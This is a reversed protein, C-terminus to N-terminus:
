GTLLALQTIRRGLGAIGAPEREVGVREVRDPCQASFSLWVTRRHETDAGIEHRGIVDTPPPRPCALRRAEVHLPTEVIQPVPRRGDRDALAVVDTRDGAAEAVGVRRHRQADVGVGEGGGVLRQCSAETVQESAVLIRRM